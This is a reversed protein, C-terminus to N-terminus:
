VLRDTRPPQESPGMTEGSGLREATESEARSGTCTLVEGPGHTHTHTNSNLIEVGVGSQTHVQDASPRLEESTM